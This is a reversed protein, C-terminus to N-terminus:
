AKLMAKLGTEISETFSEKSHNKKANRFASLSQERVWARSMGSYKRVFSEITEKECDTLLIVDGSDYGCEKSVISIIGASMAAVVSGAQGEACSPLISYACENALKAFTESHVDVFGLTHINETHYLEEIYEREFDEENKIAGCVYLECPFHKQSFIELLLDLGKHVQGASGFYLFKKPDKDFNIEFDYDYGNNVIYYVPPMHFEAYTRLNYDNGFFFAGDFSEIAKSITGAQRRPKVSVGRRERLREIRNIEQEGSVALNSSTLYAIRKADPRLHASYVDINRPILGIVLDYLGRPRAYPNQYDIVDVQYGRKGILRALERAQWFNQHRDSVTKERFPITIYILLCRKESHGHNVNKVIDLGLIGWVKKKCESLRKRLLTNELM